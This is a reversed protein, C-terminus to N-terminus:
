KRVTAMRILAIDEKNIGRILYLIVFYLLAALPVLALLNLNHFYAIFIGMLASSIIVRTIIGATEKQPLGYDVKRAWLFFLTLSLLETAVTAISAGVLSYRPILILNLVVNLIVCAGTIKTVIAQKNLSNFLNGFPVSMFILVSSWVLIQLALVSNTYEVGFILRIFRPALLTTGVGIPVGLIAMYKFFKHCSLRLADRATVYFRSMVPFIAAAFAAPIFILVLVMRYAANYWGVVADGKMYSLMVSDVWYFVTVFAMALGFPLAERLTSKWFRRDMEIKLPSWALPPITIKWRLIVFSYILVIISAFFFLSAFGTVSLGSNIALIVGCLILASNLVRGLSEYEMREFAQFVAYFMQTFATVIVYLAVLYVVRITQEPYGMLNIALAILGFAITVLIIKMLSINALYKPVLSKDRAIERVMLPHLGFDTFVGFIATFALAFSLIGFGAAGLYRALYMMYGFALLYSAAQAILLVTTNRAIRQVTSM